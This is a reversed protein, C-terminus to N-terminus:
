QGITNICQVKVQLQIVRPFFIGFITTQEVVVTQSNSYQYGQISPQKVLTISIKEGRSITNIEM